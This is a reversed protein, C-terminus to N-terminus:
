IPQGCARDVEGCKRRGLETISRRRRSRFKPLSATDVVLASVSSNLFFESRCSHSGSGCGGAGRSKRLHCLSGCSRSRSSSASSSGRRRRGLAVLELGPGVPRLSLLHATHPRRFSWCVIAHDAARSLLRGGALLTKALTSEAATAFFGPGPALPHDPRPRAGGRSPPSTPWIARPRVRHKPASKPPSPSPRRPPPRPAVSRRGQRRLRRRPLTSLSAALHRAGPVKRV